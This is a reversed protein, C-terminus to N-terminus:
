TKKRAVFIVTSGARCVAELVAVPLCALTLGLFAVNKWFRLRPTELVGRLRRVSPDLGPALSAAFSSPSDRLSFHRERVIEFGSHVLLDQVDQRRFQLVHRPVNLGSWREGFLLFQWSAINRIQIVLRGRPALLEHAAELYSAPDYLHQLVNLMMVVACSGARFPVQSVMGCVAPVGQNRWAARASDVAFELGVVKKRRRVALLSLLVGGRCGVDLVWGSEQAEDLAQAILRAHGGLVLRQYKREARSAWRGDPELWYGAPYWTRLEGPEPLPHIRIVGCVGCAVVGFERETTEYLRDGVTFLAHFGESNCAPCTEVPPLTEAGELPPPDHSPEPDIEAFEM